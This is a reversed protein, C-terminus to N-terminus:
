APRESGFEPFLVLDTVVPMTGLESKPTLVSMGGDRALSPLPSIAKSKVAVMTLLPGVFAVPTTKM